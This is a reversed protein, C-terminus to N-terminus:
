GMGIENENGNKGARIMGTGSVGHGVEDENSVEMVVVWGKFRGM